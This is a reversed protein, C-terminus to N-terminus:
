IYLREKKEEVKIKLWRPLKSFPMEELKLRQIESRIFRILVLKREAEQKMLKNIDSVENIFEVLIEEARSYLGLIKATEALELTLMYKLELDGTLLWATYFYEFAQNLEYSSKAVFGRDIMELVKIKEDDSPLESDADKESEIDMESASLVDKEELNSEEITEVKEEGSFISEGSIIEEEFKDILAEDEDFFVIKKENRNEEMFDAKIDDSDDIAINDNIDPNSELIIEDLEDKELRFNQLWSEESVVAAETEQKLKENWVTELGTSNSSFKDANLSYDLQSHLIYFSLGMLILCYIIAAAITGIRVASIPFTVIVLFAITIVGISAKLPLGNKKLIYFMVTSIPIFVLFVGLFYELM